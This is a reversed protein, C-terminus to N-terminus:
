IRVTLVNMSLLSIDKMVNAISAPRKEVQLIIIVNKVFKVMKITHELKALVDLMAKIIMM